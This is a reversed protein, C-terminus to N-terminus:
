ASEKTATAWCYIGLFPEIDSCNLLAGGPLGIEAASRVHDYAAKTVILSRRAPDYGGLQVTAVSSGAVHPVDEVVPM